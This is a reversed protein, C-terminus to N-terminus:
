RAAEGPTALASVSMSTFMAALAAVVVAWSALAVRERRAVLRVMAGLGDLASFPCREASAASM